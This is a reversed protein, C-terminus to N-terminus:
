NNKKNRKSNLSEIRSLFKFTNKFLNLTSECIYDSSDFVQKSCDDNIVQHRDYAIQNLTQNEKEGESEYSPNFGIAKYIHLKSESFEYLDLIYDPYFSHISIIHEAWSNLEKQSIAGYIFCKTVFGIESSDEQTLGKM